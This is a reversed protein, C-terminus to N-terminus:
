VSSSRVTRYPETQRFRSPLIVRFRSGKGVVSDVDIRGGHSRAVWLAISLGLGTGGVDRSRAPDVRYFRGFIHPLEEKPIGIGTDSVEVMVEGGEQRWLLTM